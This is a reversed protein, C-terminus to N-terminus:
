QNREETLERTLYEVDYELHKKALREENREAELRIVDCEARERGVREEDLEKSLYKVDEEAQQRTRRVEDREKEMVALKKVLDWYRRSTGKTRRVLEEFIDTFEEAFELDYIVVIKDSLKRLLEETSTRM